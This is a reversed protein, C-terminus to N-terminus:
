GEDAVCVRVCVCEFLVPMINLRGEICWGYELVVLSENPFANLEVKRDSM